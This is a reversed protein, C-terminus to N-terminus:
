IASRRAQPGQHRRHQLRHLRKRPLRLAPRQRLGGRRRLRRRFALPRQQGAFSAPVDVLRRYLGIDTSPKGPREQYTPMSFGEIEWNAPVPITKWDADSADPAAFAPVAADAPLEGKVAPSDGHDLKFRWTGTMPLVAPNDSRLRNVAVPVDGPVPVPAAFATPALISASLIFALFLHRLMTM